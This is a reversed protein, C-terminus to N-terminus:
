FLLVSLQQVYSGDFSAVLEREIYRVGDAVLASCYVFAIQMLTGFTVRVIHVIHCTDDAIEFADRVEGLCSLCFCPFSVVGCLVLHSVNGRCVKFPLIYNILGCRWM